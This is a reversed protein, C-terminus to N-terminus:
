VVEYGAEIVAATLAELSATGTVSARGQQLDVTVQQVGPVTQLAKEVRAQCHMCMMGEIKLIQEMTITGKEQPKQLVLAAPRDVPAPLDEPVNYKFGRLRLANSVVCVSSCSMCAAGLMPSLKLGILGYLVGAAIPIGISNYFFAWFLNQRINRIVARSLRLAAVADTLSSRMLVIDAADMAIDTGAGVAMGVDARTLAPADNIGDGVMLVRSGAEQLKRIQAEKCDPLVDSVVRDIGVAAAVAAATRANDGTLMVTNLGLARLEAVASAASPKPIDWAAILGIWTDNKAFLLVSKGAATYPDTLDPPLSIGCSRLYAASGALCPCDDVTGRLGLGPISEFESVAGPILGSQAACDIVARALPHESRSELAAAVALLDWQTWEPAPVLDTVVPAGETLTGTKDFVVTDVKHLTELVEASKFLVGLEAGRGTGVMIAVPTALGLACPCSIVLVSVAIDVAFSLPKGLLLWVLAALVAIGMVVPVFVGAIRDALRAIPAKSGGAEEVLRIVRSLVTDGGVQEARFRISGSVCVCAARVTDGPAAEQPISEGTLAATDISARGETVTGDAGIREGPRVLVIDGVRLLEPSIRLEEGEREVCVTEPTLSMLKRLADGTKNKSRAEFYKGLTVLALIMAASEFYLADAAAAAAATDGNGLAWACRYVSILGYLLSASSGVAILSDMNPSLHALNRWGRVYYARNVLVVPLTLLLQTLANVMSGKAPTLFAPLPLGLMRGMSLLMLPILFAFSVLIRLRMERLQQAIPDETQETQPTPAPAGETELLSAGYGARGIASVIDGHSLRNPDYEIRLRNTLLNVQASFVGPLSSATKEVRASCAACTMGTVSYTEKM